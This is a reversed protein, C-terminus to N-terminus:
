QNYEGAAVSRVSLNMTATTATSTGSNNTIRVQSQSNGSRNPGTSTENELSKNADARKNTQCKEPINKKSPNRKGLYFICKRTIEEAVRDAEKELLNEPAGVKLRPQAVGHDAHCSVRPSAVTKENINSRISTVIAKQHQRDPIKAPMAISMNVTIMFQGKRM